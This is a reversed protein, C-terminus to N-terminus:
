LHEEAANASRFGLEKAIEARTPPMRTESIHRRILEFVETQRPTLPKM